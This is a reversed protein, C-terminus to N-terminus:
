CDLLLKVAAAALTYYLKGGNKTPVSFDHPEIETGNVSIISRQLSIVTNKETISAASLIDKSGCGCSIPVTDTGGLYDIAKKNKSEFVPIFGIPCRSQVSHKFYSDFVIIGNGEVIPVYNCSIISVNKLVRSSDIGHNVACVDTYKQLENFVTDFLLSHKKATCIIIVTNGMFEGAGIFNEQLLNIILHNKTIICFIFIFGTKKLLRSELFLIIKLIMFLILHKKIGTLM